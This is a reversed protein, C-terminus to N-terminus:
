GEVDVSEGLSKEVESKLEELEMALNNEVVLDGIRVRVGAILDPNIDIEMNVNNDALASFTRILSRQQEPSLEKASTVYVTPTREVLSDRITRVQRMDQKGLDWIESNLAEILKEHASDPTTKQLIQGSIELIKDVLQGQLEEIEHQQRKAAEKEAEALIKEAELQTAQILSESEIKAQEYATQVRKELETDINNLRNDIEQLKKEAKQDKLRAQELLAEKEEARTEIRKITPKFLLFYLAVALVLFNIISGVITIPDINLM